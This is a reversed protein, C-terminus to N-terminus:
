FLPEDYVRKGDLVLGKIASKGNRDVAVIAALKADIAIYELKTGTGEQVFYSELGYRVHIYSPPRSVVVPRPDPHAIATSQGTPSRPNDFSANVPAYHLWGQLVVQDTSVKGPHRKSVATAKYKEDPLREITVFLEDGRALDERVLEGPIRSIDYSLIVYDGRFLSRPDVPVVPLVIEKGTKLVTIREGVMYGLVATQIGAVLAISLWISRGSLKIM